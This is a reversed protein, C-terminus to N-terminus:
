SETGYGTPPLWAPRGPCSATSTVGFSFRYCLWRRRSWRTAWNMALRRLLETPLRNQDLRGVPCCPRRCRGASTRTLVRLRGVLRLLIRARVLGLRTGHVGLRRPLRRTMRPRRGPLTRPGRVRRDHVEVSEPDRSMLLSASSVASVFGLPPPRFARSSAGASSSPPPGADGQGAPRSVSADRAVEGVDSPAPPMDDERGVSPDVDVGARGLLLVAEEDHHGRRAVPRRVAANGGPPLSLRRPTTAASFRNRAAGGLLEGEIFGDPDWHGYTFALSM